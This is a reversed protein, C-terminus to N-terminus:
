GPHAGRSGRRRSMRLSWASRAAARRRRRAALSPRAATRPRRRSRAPMGTARPRPGGPVSRTAGRARPRDTRRTGPASRGRLPRARVLPVVAERKSFRSATKVTTSPATNQRSGTPVRTAAATTTIAPPPASTPNSWPPVPPVLQSPGHSIAIAVSAQAASLVSDRGSDSRSGASTTAAFPATPTAAESNTANPVPAVQGATGAARPMRAHPAMPKPALRLSYRRACRTSPAALVPETNATAGKRPASPAASRPSGSPPQNVTAPPSAIPRPTHSWRPSSWSWSWSWSVSSCSCRVAVVVAVVVIVDVIRRHGALVNMRVHVGGAGVSMRV